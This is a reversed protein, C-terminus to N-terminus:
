SCLCWCSVLCWKKKKLFYTVHVITNSPLLHNALCCEIFLLCLFINVLTTLHSSLDVEACRNAHTHNQREFNGFGCVFFFFLSGLFRTKGKNCFKISRAAVTDVPM